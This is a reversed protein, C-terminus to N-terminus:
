ESGTTITVMETESATDFTVHIRAALSPNRDHAVWTHYTGGPGGSGNEILVIEQITGYTDILEQIGDVLSPGKVWSGPQDDEWTWDVEFSTRSSWRQSPTSGSSFTNPSLADELSLTTKISHGWQSQNFEAYATEITADAPIGLSTWRWGGWVSHGGGPAGAYIDASSDSYSPWGSPDHYADDSSTAVQALM